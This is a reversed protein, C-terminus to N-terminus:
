RADLIIDPHGNETGFVAVFYGSEGEFAANDILILPRTTRYVALTGRTEILRFDFAVGPSLPEQDADFSRITGHRMPPPQEDHLEVQGYLFITHVVYQLDDAKTVTWIDLTHQPVFKDGEVYGFTDKRGFAKKFALPWDFTASNFSDQEGAGALLLICTGIATAAVVSMGTKTRLRM